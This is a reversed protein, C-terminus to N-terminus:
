EDHDEKGDQEGSTGPTAAGSNIETHRIQGGIYGTRAILGFSILSVLLVVMAVPRSLSSKKYTLLLGTLSAVGM